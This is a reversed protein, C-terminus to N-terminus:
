AHLIKMRHSLKLIKFKADLCPTFGIFMGYSNAPAAAAALGPLALPLHRGLRHRRRRRGGRTLAGAHEAYTLPILSVGRGLYIFFFLSFFVGLSM